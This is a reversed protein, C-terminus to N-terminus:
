ECASAEAALLRAVEDPEDLGPRVFTRAHPFVRELEDTLWILDDIMREVEALSAAGLHALQLWAAHSREIGLLAVKASGDYDAPWDRDKPEDAALGHIARHIKAPISYQFWRIVSAPNHPAVSSHNGHAEIWAHVADSYARARADILQHEPPIVPEAYHIAEAAANNMEEILEQLWEPPEPPADQPLLPADAVPKFTPDKAAQIAACDAFAHCRSTLACTECWRDCYNDIGVIFGNRVDM